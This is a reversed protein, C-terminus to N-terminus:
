VTPGPLSTHQWLATTRRTASDPPSRPTRKRSISWCLINHCVLLRPHSHSTVPPITAPWAELQRSLTSFANAPNTTATCTLERCRKQTCAGSSSLWPNTTEVWFMLWDMKVSISVCDGKLFIRDTERCSFLRMLDFDLCYPAVSAVETM